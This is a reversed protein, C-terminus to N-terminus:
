PRVLPPLDGRRPSAASGGLQFEGTLLAHRTPRGAMVEFLIETTLRAIQQAPQVLTTLTPHVFRSLPIGDFGVISLDEPVRLGLELAAKMAGVAMVDAVTFIATVDPRETLLSTALRHGYEFTYPSADPVQVARVLGEDCEVDAARLADRYGQLRLQGVSVDTTDVGILAIKRHGLRVLHRVARAAEARDDVSVSSYDEPAIGILNGITSLVFPVRLRSFVQPDHTFNGGLFILGSIADEEALAIAQEVEDAHHPVSVLTFLHDHERAATEMSQLMQQFFPNDIGKMLVAISQSSALKLFRAHRNPRYSLREAIQRIRDRTAQSVGPQDNLARSVTVVGVGAERAVDKITVRTPTPPDLESM